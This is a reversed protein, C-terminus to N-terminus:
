DGVIINDSIVNLKDRRPTEDERSPEVCSCLLGLTSIGLQASPFLAVVTAPLETSERVGEGV